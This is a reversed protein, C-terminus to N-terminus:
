GCARPVPARDHWRVIEIGACQLAVKFMRREFQERVHAPLEPHNALADVMIRGVRQADDNLILEVVVNDGIM